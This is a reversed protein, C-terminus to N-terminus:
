HKPTLIGVAYYEDKEPDKLLRCNDIIEVPNGSRDKLVVEMNMLQGTEKLLSWEQSRKSVEVFDKANRGILDQAVSFGLLQATVDNCDLFEGKETTVYYGINLENIITVLEKQVRQNDIKLDADHSSM